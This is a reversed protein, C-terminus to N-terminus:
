GIVFVTDSASKKVHKVQINACIIGLNLTPM